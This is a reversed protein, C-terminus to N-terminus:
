RLTERDYEAVAMRQAQLDAEEGLEERLRRIKKHLAKVYRLKQRNEVAPSRLLRVMLKALEQVSKQKTRVTM